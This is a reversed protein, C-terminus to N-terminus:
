VVLILYTKPRTVAVYLCQLAESRNRMTLIDAVDVVAVDFTSGQAKHVTSAVCPRLEAISDKIMYGQASAETAQELLNAKEKFDTTLSSQAKLKEFMRFFGIEKNKKQKIDIAANVTLNDDLTVSLCAIGQILVPEGIATIVGEHNNNIVNQIGTLSSVPEGIVFSQVDRGHLMSRIAVTQKDISENKYALYRCDLGNKLADSCYDAIEHKQIMGIKVGDKDYENVMEVVDSVTIHASAAMVRRLAASLEIIPNDEGQRIIDSLHARQEIAAFVPSLAGQGSTPPLQAPDGVYVISASPAAENIDQFLEADIMSCEDIILIGYIEKTPRSFTMTGGGQRQPRKGLAKHITTVRVNESVIGNTELMASLVAAAKHTPTAITILKHSLSKIVTAITTSKGTGAFGTLLVPTSNEISEIITNFALQQKPTLKM